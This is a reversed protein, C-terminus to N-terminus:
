PEGVSLFILFLPADFEEAVFQIRPCSSKRYPRKETVRVAEKNGTLKDGDRDARRLLLITWYYRNSGYLEISLTTEDKNEVLVTADHLLTNSRTDLNALVPRHFFPEFPSLRQYDLPGSLGPRAGDNADYRQGIARR